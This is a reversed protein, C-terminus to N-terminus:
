EEFFHINYDRMFDDVSAQALVKAEELTKCDRKIVLWTWPCNEDQQKHAFQIHYNRHFASGGSISGFKKGKIKLDVFDEEGIAALGKSRPHKKFVVKTM